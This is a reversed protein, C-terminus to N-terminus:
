LVRTVLAYKLAMGVISPISLIHKTDAISLVIALVAFVITQVLFMIMLQLFVAIKISLDYTSLNVLCLKKVLNTHFLQFWSM